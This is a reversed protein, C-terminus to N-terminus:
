LNSLSVCAIGCSLPLRPTNASEISSANGGLHLFQTTRPSKEMMMIEVKVNITVRPAVQSMNRTHLNLKKLSKAFVPVTIKTSLVVIKRFNCITRQFFIYRWMVTYVDDPNDGFFM